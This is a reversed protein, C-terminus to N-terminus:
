GIPGFMPEHLIARNGGLLTCTQTGIQLGAAIRAHLETPTHNRAEALAPLLGWLTFAGGDSTALADQADSTSGLTAWPRANTADIMSGSSCSDSLLYLRSTDHIAGFVATIEDDVIGPTAWTEDMGDAEDGSADRVQSGHGFYYIIVRQKPGELIAAARTLARMTAARDRTTIVDFTPADGHARCKADIARQVTEAIGSMQTGHALEPVCCVIVVHM